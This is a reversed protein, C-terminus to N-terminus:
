LVALSVVNETAKDVMGSAVLALTEKDRLDVTPRHRHSHRAMEVQSTPQYGM